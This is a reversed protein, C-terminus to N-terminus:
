REIPTAPHHGPALPEEERKGERSPGAAALSGALVFRRSAAGTAVCAELALRTSGANVGLFTERDAARPM